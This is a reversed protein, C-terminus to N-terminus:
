AGQRLFDKYVELHRVVIAKPHYRARIVEAAKLAGPYGQKVWRQVGESLAEWDNAGYLEAGDVGTAIDVIGGVKFGLFKLNRALGEAVVLGFAEEQPVHILGHARDLLEVLEGGSKMGLYRAYGAKEAPQMRELFQRAYASQPDAMGIFCLEFDLGKRHWDGAWELLRLSQKLESISGVNLLTCKGTRAPPGLASFFESRLPNPVRWTRRARPEVLHETHASNCLVGGARKLAFTELRAACWLFSGIRARQSRAIAAMNGHITILNPYRCLAACVGCDRETGQGHVLDPQLQKVKRWVARVCGQYGTRLWGIKPVLLGHFWINRALKEPARMPKQWCSIVHLELEPFDPVAEFLAEQPTGFYPEPKDYERWHERADATLMAVKM